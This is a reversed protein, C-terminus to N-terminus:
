ANSISELINIVNTKFVSLSCNFLDIDSFESNFLTLSRRIYTNQAYNTTCPPVCFLNSHRLRRSPVWFLVNELLSSSDIINNVIKYLYSLDLLKRRDFLPLLGYFSCADLYERKELRLYNTRYELQKLFKTVIDSQAYVLSCAKAGKGNNCLYAPLCLGYLAM